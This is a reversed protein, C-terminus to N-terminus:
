FLDGKLLSEAISNDAVVTLRLGVAKALLEVNEFRASGSSAMRSVSVPHLGAHRAIAAQTMGLKKGAFFIQTLLSDLAM